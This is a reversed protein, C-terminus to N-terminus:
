ITCRHEYFLEKEHDVVSDIDTIMTILCAAVTHCPSLSLAETLM